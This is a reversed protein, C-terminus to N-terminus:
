KTRLTGIARKTDLLLDLANTIGSVFIAASNMAEAACGEGVDVAVALGGSDKVAKLWKADNRGNGFVAVARLDLGLERMYKEKFEDHRVGSPIKDKLTVRDKKTLAELQPAATKRTDSTVVHIDVIRSLERLRKNVGGVLRGKCSLTGTYDTCVAKIRLKGFGPIDIEIGRKSKNKTM